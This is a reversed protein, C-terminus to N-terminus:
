RCLKDVQDYWAQGAPCLADYISLHPQGDSTGETIIRSEAGHQSKYGPILNSNPLVAWHHPANVIGGSNSIRAVTAPAKTGLKYSSSDIQLVAGTSAQLAKIDHAVDSVVDIQSGVVYVEAGNDAQIASIPVAGANPVNLRSRLSAGIVNVIVKGTTQDVKLAVVNNPLGGYQSTAGKAILETSYINHEGCRADYAVTMGRPIAEIRSNHWTHRTNLPDCNFTSYVGRAGGLIEVDTWTTISTGGLHVARYGGKVTLHAINMGSCASALVGPVLSAMDSSIITASRGAGEISVGGINKCEITGLFSGPGIEIRLPKNTTPSESAVAANLSAIDQFCNSLTSAAGNDCSTRLLLTNGIPAAFVALPSILAANLVVCMVSSIFNKIFCM